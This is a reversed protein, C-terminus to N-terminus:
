VFPLTFSQINTIPDIDLLWKPKYPFIQVSNLPTFVINHMEQATAHADESNYSSNNSVSTNNVTGTPLNANSDDASPKYIVYVPRKYGSGSNPGLYQVRIMGVGAISNSSDMRIVEGMAKGDGVPLAYDKPLYDNECTNNFVYIKYGTYASGPLPLNHSDNLVELVKNGYRGEKDLISKVIDGLVETWIYKSPSGSFPIIRKRVM